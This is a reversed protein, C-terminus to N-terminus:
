NRRRMGYYLTAIKLRLEWNDIELHTGDGGRKIGYYLSFIDALVKVIAESKKFGCVKGLEEEGSGM